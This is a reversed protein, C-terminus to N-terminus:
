LSFFGTVSGQPVGVVPLLPLAAPLLSLFSPPASIPHSGSPTNDWSVLCSLNELRLCDNAIDLLHTFFRCSLEHIHHNAPGWHVQPPCTWYSNYASALPSWLPGKPSIQWHSPDPHSCFNSRFHIKPQTVQLTVRLHMRSSHLGLLEM